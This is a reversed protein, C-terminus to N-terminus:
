KIGLTTKIEKIDLKIINIQGCNQEVQQQLHPIHNSKLLEVDKQINNLPLIIWGVVAWVSGGIFIIWTIENRLVKRIGNNNEMILKGCGGRSLPQPNTIIIYNFM